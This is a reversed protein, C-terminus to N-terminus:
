RGLARVPRDLEIRTVWPLALLQLATRGSCRVSFAHTLGFSRKVEVGHAVLDASRERVNGSVHVILDVFKDPQKRWMEQLSPDAEAM